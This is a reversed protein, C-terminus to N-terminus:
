LKIIYKLTIYPQLNNHAGGGGTNQNVATTSNTSTARFGYFTGNQVSYPTGTPGDTLAGNGPFTHNHANQTHTHSPMESTTLTHTKEGGSEGMSAFETQTSDLGVPVRGKMNPVNFTTSGDGVGYTTGIVNFLKVNATRSLATGDCVQWGSPVAAASWMRIEGTIGMTSPDSPTAMQAWATWGGGGNSSHYSRIWISPIQTGGANSHFRQVCRDTALYITVLIGLGGNLSWGSGSALVHLSVGFPYNTAPLASEAPPTSSVHNISIDSIDDSLALKKWSSWTTTNGSRIWKEPTTGSGHIRTWVQTTDNDSFRSPYNITQLSGYKGAFTPWDATEESASLWMISIGDPYGNSPTADSYDAADLIHVLNEGPIAVLADGADITSGDHRTLILHGSGDIEGDVISSDEIAQMRTSNFVTVEAM